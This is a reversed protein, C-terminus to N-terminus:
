FTASDNKIRKYEILKFSGLKLLVGNNGVETSEIGHPLTITIIETAGPGIAYVADAAKAVRRVSNELQNIKLNLNAENLSYQIVPILFVLIIGVLIIYEIAAQAFKM